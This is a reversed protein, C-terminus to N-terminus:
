MTLAHSGHWAGGSRARPAGTPRGGRGVFAGSGVPVVMMMKTMKKVQMKKMMKKTAFGFGMIMWVMRWVMVMGRGRRAGAPGARRRAARRAPPGQVRAPRGPISHSRGVSAPVHQRWRARWAMLSISVMLMMLMMLMLILAVLAVLMLATLALFAMLAMSAVLLLLLLLLVRVSTWWASPKPCPRPCPKPCSAAVRRPHALRACVRDCVCAYMYKM